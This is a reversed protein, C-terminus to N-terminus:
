FSTVLMDDPVDIKEVFEPPVEVSVSQAISPLSVVVRTSDKVKTIFGEIGRFPGAVIRVVEGVSMYEERHIADPSDALIRIWNIQEEPIPSPLNRVGVFRVVGDTQVISSKDRLDTKVFTYGKFLPERVRKKRDSWVHIEEILPLFSEIGRRHLDDDIKKEFRSRTYLAYWRKEPECKYSFQYEPQIRSM